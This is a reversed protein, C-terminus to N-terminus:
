KYEQRTEKTTKKKKKSKHKYKNKLQMNFRRQDTPMAVKNCESLHTQKWFYLFVCM